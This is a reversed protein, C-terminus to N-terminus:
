RIHLQHALTKFRPDLFNAKNLCLSVTHYQYRSGMDAALLQKFRQIAASDEINTILKDQIAKYLPGLASITPYSESSLYTTVDKYPELVEAVDELLRWETCSLELHTLNRRRHSVAAIARQQECVRKVM